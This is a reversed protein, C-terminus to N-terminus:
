PLRLNPRSDYRPRGELGAAHRTQRYKCSCRLLRRFEIGAWRVRIPGATRAAHQHRIARSALKTAMRCRSDRRAPAPAPAPAADPEVAPVLEPYYSFLTRVTSPPPPDPVPKRYPAHWLEWQCQICRETPGCLACRFERADDRRVGDGSSGSRSMRLVGFSSQNVERLAACECSLCCGVLSARLDVLRDAVYVCARRPAADGCLAWFGAFSHSCYRFSSRRLFYHVVHRASRDGFLPRIKGPM